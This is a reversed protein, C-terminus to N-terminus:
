SRFLSEGPFNGGGRNASKKWANASKVRSSSKLIVLVYDYKEEREGSKNLYNGERRGQSADRKKRTAAARARQEAAIDEKRIITTTPKKESLKKIKEGAKSRLGGGGRGLASGRTRPVVQTGDLDM